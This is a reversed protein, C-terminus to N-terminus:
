ALDSLFEDEDDSLFSPTDEEEAKKLLGVGEEALKQTAAAESKATELNALLDENEDMNHAVYARMTNAAEVVKITEFTTYDWIHLIRAIVTNATIKEWSPIYAPKPYPLPSNMCEFSEENFNGPVIFPKRMEHYYIEDVFSPKEDPESTVAVVTTLPTPMSPPDPAPKSCCHLHPSPSVFHPNRARQVFRAAFKKKKQTPPYITSDSSPRDTALVQRFTGEQLKREWKELRALSLPALWPFTPIIFPKLNNILALLNKNSLFVKQAREVVDIEFLKNLKAFSAKKVWEVLHRRREKSQMFGFCRDGIPSFSYPCVFQVKGKPEHLFTPPIQTFHLFQKFLSPIPLCLGVVYQKKTFYMMNNLLDVSSLTKGDTLQILINDPIHFRAQFERKSLVGILRELRLHRARANKWGSKQPRGSTSIVIERAMLSLPDPDHLFRRPDVCNNSDIVRFALRKALSLPLIM